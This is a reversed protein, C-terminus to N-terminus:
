NANIALQVAGGAVQAQISFYYDTNHALTAYVTPYPNNGVAFNLSPEFQSQDVAPIIPAGCAGTALVVHRTGIPSAYEFADFRGLYNGSSPTHLKLVWNTGPVFGSPATIIGSNGVAFTLTQNFVTGICGGSPPPSPPGSGYPPVPNLPANISGGGGMLVASQQTGLGITGIQGVTVFLTQQVAGFDTTQQAATYVVSPSTVGTIVRACVTFTADWIQVVYAETAESLPVDVFNQWTGGIRTRRIWTITLNNSGDLAGGIQVPSYCRLAVGNNTFPVDTAASLSGGSAVGKFDRHAFIEAFPGNVNVGTPLLVFTEGAGHGGIAWETGRRGRLLGTLTYLKSGILTANKFQLLEAGIVCGNAGNLVEIESHSELDGAGPRLQVTVASSEDFMNGGGFNGLVDTTDGITDPVVDVLLSSFNVGGDVSKYLTAGPWTATASKGAMAAYYGNPNDTDTVLPLDLMVLDTLQGAVPPPTPPPALGPVPIGQPQTYVYPRTVVGELTIVGGVTETKDIVRVAYGGAEIVDTPELATWKRPVQVTAKTREEWASFLLADTIGKATRDDMVIALQLSVSLESSTILRQSIQTGNQYDAGVNIYTASIIRPLDQEQTRDSTVLPPPTGGMQYAGLDASPVTVAPDHGRKIFKAQTDSEVADFFYATQLPEIMGRTPGQTSIVYGDVLDTLESVDIQAATLGSRASLDAVIDSLLEGDPRPTIAIIGDSTLATGNGFSLVNGETVGALTGPDTPVFLGGTITFARAQNSTNTYCLIGQWVTFAASVNFDAPIATSAWSEILNLDHDLHYFIDGFSFPGGGTYKCWIDGSDDAAIMWSAGSHAGPLNFATVPIGNSCVGGPADWQSIYASLNGGTAYISDISFVPPIQCALAISNATMIGGPETVPSATIAGDYYFANILLSSFTAAQGLAYCIHPNSQCSFITYNNGTSEVPGPVAINLDNSILNGNTDYTNIQQFGPFSFGTAPLHDIGSTDFIFGLSITGDNNLQCCQPGGGMPGARKANNFPTFTSVRWPIPSSSTYVEFTLSPIRNGYETLLMDTFQAYAVGRYAPVNGVGEIAEQTPDPLQTETGLYLTFPFNQATLGSLPDFVLRSDAWIRRVGLIPGECLAVAFSATYTYTTVTPGGKGGSKQAHEVLDTQWIINGAIRVAGYLLPIMQGFSSNHMKLDTLRPGQQGKQFLSSGIASGVAWGISTGLPGFFSGVFAGAAGLVLSAM